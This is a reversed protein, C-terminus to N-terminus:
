EAREVGAREKIAEVEAHQADTLAFPAASARLHAVREKLRDDLTKAGEKEWRDFMTRDTVDGLWFDRVHKRTYKSSLFNGGPGIAMIEDLDIAYDDTAVDKMYARTFGVMEAGFVISEYSSQMGAELFGVDHLITARSLGGALASWATEAAFQGDLCKSDSFGAYNFSPLGYWRALDSQAAQALMSEPVCYAETMVRMDMAGVGTGYLYPAGPRVHQSLVMAALQEAGGVVISGAISRPGTTGCNPASAYAIPVSLEACAMVKSLGDKDLQLPPAPMAYIMLSAAEGAAACMEKIHKLVDGNRPAVMLPKRTGRLMAAVASVDDVEQPVDGPLGMSMVFDIEPLLESLAALGEIDANMIRRREGTEPDRIYICDSGTGFYSNGDKLELVEDRGRSRVEWTRPVSELAKEVLGRDVRVRTGDIRAGADKFLDLAAQYRVEVGTTELLTLTAEHIRTCDDDSWVDIRASSV